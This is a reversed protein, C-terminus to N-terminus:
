SCNKKGEIYVQKLESYFLDFLGKLIKRGFLIINEMSDYDNIIDYEDHDTIIRDIVYSLIKTTYERVSEYDCPNHLSISKDLHERIVSYRRIIWLNTEQSETIIIKM